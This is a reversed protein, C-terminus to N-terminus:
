TMMMVVSTSAAVLLMGILAFSTGAIPMLAKLNSPPAPADIDTKM